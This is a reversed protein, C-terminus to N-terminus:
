SPAHREYRGAVSRAADPPELRPPAEASRAYNAVVTMGDRAFRRICARLAAAVSWALERCTAGVDSRTGILEHSKQEPKAHSM